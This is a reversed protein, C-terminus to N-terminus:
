PALHPLVPERWRVFFPPVFFRAASRGEGDFLPISCM